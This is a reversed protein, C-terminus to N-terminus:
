DRRQYRQEAHPNGIFPMLAMFRALKIAHALKRQDQGPFGTRRRSQIKGTPGVLTQLYSLNKYDLPEKPKVLRKPRMGFRGFRDGRRGRRQPRDGDRGGDGSGMGNMGFGSM